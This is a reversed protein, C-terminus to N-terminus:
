SRKCVRLISDDVQIGGNSYRVLGLRKFKNMFMNIRQRTTGVMEALTEQSVKPLIKILQDETDPRAFSLLARVLRKEIPNLLQDALGEEAQVKKALLRGIFQDAFADQEHLLRIMEKREILLLSCPTIATASQMRFPMGALCAEGFFDDPGLLGVVAERGAENVVSLKVGGKQICYITSATDGQSYIVQRKRYEVLTKTSGALDLFSSSNLTRARHRGVVSRIVTRARVTPAVNLQSSAM